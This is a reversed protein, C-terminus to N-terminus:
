LPAGYGLSGIRKHILNSVFSITYCIILYLIGVSALPIVYEMRANAINISVTFMEVVGIAYAISSDKLLITFENLLAPISLVIVQPLIIYRFSKWRDLGISLAAELQRAAIAEIIGRFIQSQYSFSIIGLGIIASAINNLKLGYFVIFLMLIPPISRITKNVYDIVKSYVGGIFVQVFAILTGLFLGLSFGGVSLVFTNLFGRLLILLLTQFFEEFSM